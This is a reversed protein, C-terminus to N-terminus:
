VKIDTLVRMVFLNLALFIGVLFCAPIFYAHDRVADYYNPDGVNIVILAVVPFASLFKGSWKAEATIAKVRRFLRFRARIVKALGALIEALNGGSTQQINVAVALFRLDQMDLREAMEKLADGVDRGYASEDAIVGMESALPDQVEKSVIQVASSFPHGVRLSRVMLEVADPLQEEIMALRKNAKSSVWFYVAGVGIGISMMIRVPLSSATGVSLGLFAVVALMGMIMVLQSPTFAIAAKQAKEGLLSYLPISKSKMHQQMEKRLKELVEDRGTGKDLMELRRNVRSNLSISKGFTVLYLGEVLVLVGIFILGYIIPEPSM